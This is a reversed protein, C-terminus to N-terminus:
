EPVFILYFKQLVTMKQLTDWHAANESHTALVNRRTYFKYQDRGRILFTLSSKAHFPIKCEHLLSFRAVM